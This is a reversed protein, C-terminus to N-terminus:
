ADEGCSDLNVKSDVFALNEFKAFDPSVNTRVISKVCVTSEGETVIADCTAVTVATFVM